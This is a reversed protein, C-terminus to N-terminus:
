PVGTGNGHRDGLAANRRFVPTFHKRLNVEYGHQTTGKKTPLKLERYKKVFGRFTVTSRPRYDADNIEALIQGPQDNLPENRLFM